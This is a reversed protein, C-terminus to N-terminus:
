FIARISARGINILRSNESKRGEYQINIEINGALRKVIDLTWIYNKGPTLGELMIYGVATNAAGDYAKFAIQNYIGKLSISTNSFLNYKIETNVAHSQSKEASDIKNNKIILVYSVIARFKSKYMYTLSPEINRQDIKYNRNSFKINETSLTNMIRKCTFNSIINSRLNIRLRAILSNLDRSEKGYTLLSVSQSQNHTIDFGWRTSLRNYFFANSVSSNTYVLSTDTFKNDFPNFIFNNDAIVKKNIQLTSNATINSFVKKLLISQSKIIEEPYVDVSYNFQLSNAKVYDNTPTFIRIYKKQDQFVAIEFENLEEIGNGNYDIWTFEGQGATVLLYSFERKQEQGAGLEYFLNGRLFGHISNFNYDIRGVITKDDKLNSIQNKFVHLTRYNATVSLQHNPNSNLSTNFLWNNSENFKTFLNNFPLYDVRNFYGLKWKNMLTSDSKIFSEFRYFTNSGFLLTDNSAHKIKNIESIFVSGIQINRMKNFSKTVSLSPRFFDGKVLLQEFNVKNLNTNFTWQKLKSYQILQHQNGNYGEKRNYNILDYQFYGGKQGLLKFSVGSLSEDSPNFDNVMNWNRYFEVSRLREITKFEKKVWEYNGNIEIQHSSKLLLFNNSTNKFYVKGAWGNDNQKDRNSFTNVDYNSIALETGIKLQKSVDAKIGLAYVQHNKPTVLFSVPEYEGQKENNSNPMIWEYIKGNSGKLSQKYNGKGIGVYSFSLRYLLLNNDSSQVFVSDHINGNYVTDIKKYLIKGNSFTDIVANSTFANQVSDGISSLFSKQNQDLEQDITSNKSDTNSYASLSISIRDNFKVENAVFMQTNLYNRDAYQFEVIIRSDKTIVRKPTFILEASNYNITYDESEGRQLLEGDIFVRETGALVVFYLENNAGQLRYPGQNGELATIANRTFKGKAIAGSVLLNNSIKNSIKNETSFSVGQLRRYFNLFYNKNEKFDLDGFSVQWKNKKIQLFIRDFDRLDKTNGDPQIPINNDSIAALLQLSDGIIGSIQFNMSSNLTADQNNGFSISRGFSGESQIGKFDFINNSTVENNENLRVPNNNLFRYRVDEYNLHQYKKNLIFPLFRYQVLVSDTLPNVKWKLVSNIEDLDYLDASVGIVRFTNPIVSLSDFITIGSHVAIKKIRLNSITKPNQASLFGGTLLFFLFLYLRQTRM